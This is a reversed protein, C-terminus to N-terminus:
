WVVCGSCLCQKFAVRQELRIQVVTPQPWQIPLLRGLQLNWQRLRCLLMGYRKRLRPTTWFCCRILRCTSRLHRTQHPCYSPECSSGNSPACCQMYPPWIRASQVSDSLFSPLGGGGFDFNYAAAPQLVLASCALALLAIRVAFAM